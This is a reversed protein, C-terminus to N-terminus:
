AMNPINEMDIMQQLFLPIDDDPQVFLMNDDLHQAFLPADQFQNQENVEVPENKTYDNERDVIFNFKEDIVLGNLVNNEFDRFWEENVMDYKGSKYVDVDDELDYNDFAVYGDDDDYDIITTPVIEKMEREANEDELFNIIDDDIEVKQNDKLELIHKLVKDKCKKNGEIYDIMAIKNRNLQELLINIEGLEINKNQINSIRMHLCDLSLRTDFKQTLPYKKNACDYNIKNTSLMNLVDRPQLYSNLLTSIPGIMITDTLNIPM